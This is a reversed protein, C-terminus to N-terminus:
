ATPEPLPVERRKANMQVMVRELTEYEQAGVVAYKENVVFTPIAEVGIAYAQEIAENTEQLHTGNELAARLADGDLGVEDAHKVLVDIEMLNEFDTFYGRFLARHYDIVQQTTGHARAFEGAQLALITHPTFSRGRKFDLGLRKGRAEVPTEPGGKGTPRRTRGEPPISPDLFFPLWDLEIEWNRYLKEIETLGIYCWPCIFDSVVTVLPPGTREEEEEAAPDETPAQDTAPANTM